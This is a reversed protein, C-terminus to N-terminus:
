SKGSTVAKERTKIQLERVKIVADTQDADAKIQIKLLELEYLRDKELQAANASAANAERIKQIASYPADAYEMILDSPVAGPNNQSYELLLQAFAARTTNTENMETMAIDYDGASLDNFGELEPNM